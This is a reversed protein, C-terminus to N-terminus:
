ITTCYRAMGGQPVVPKHDGGQQSHRYWGDEYVSQFIPSQGYGLARTQTYTHIPLTPYLHTLISVYYVTCYYLNPVLFFKYIYICMEVLVISISSCVVSNSGGSSSGVQLASLQSLDDRTPVRPLGAHM